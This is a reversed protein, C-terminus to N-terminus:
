SKTGNEEQQKKLLLRRMEEKLPATDGGSVKVAMLREFLEKIQEDLTMASM